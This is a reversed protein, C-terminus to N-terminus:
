GPRNDARPQTLMPAYLVVFLSFALIWSLASLTVGIRYDIWQNAALLRLVTAAIIAWIMLRGYPPLKMPRGTHGVAVRSMVGLILTGIGGLALSHQWLTDPIAPYFGSVGRLLLALVVWGYALHLIWLLPERWALWGRWQYLRLANVGGAFLAALAECWAPLPLLALVALLAVSAMALGTVTTSKVVREAPEGQGRLWNATFAPTIRGAIVVIMLTIIDLGLGQGLKLWHMSGGSFGLHMLLNGVTLAALVAVLILNRKNGYRLLVRAAYIAVVPLFALDVAAVLWGPLWGAFWFVLRGALWLMVLALLGKGQLPPAGTWNCMATLLFGATAATVFGYIMEHSHWQLPSWGLPLPWGGFLFGVWALVVVIAYLGTLIFFPRFPYCLLANRQPM